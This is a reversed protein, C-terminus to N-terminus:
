GAQESVSFLSNLKLECLLQFIARSTNVLHLGANAVALDRYLVLLKGIGASGIHTVGKFDLTVARFQRLPLGRFCRKLEEAGREDIEGELLIRCQDGTENVTLKM